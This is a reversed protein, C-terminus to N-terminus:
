IRGPNSGHFVNRGVALRNAGRQRTRFRELRDKITVVAGDEFIQGTPDPRIDAALEGTFDESDREGM